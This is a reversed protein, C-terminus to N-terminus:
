CREWVKAFGMMKWARHSVKLILSGAHTVLKGATDIFSRRFTGAYATVPIVDYTIDSKFAEYLFLTLVRLQYIVKNPKLKEFPLREGQLEKFARFVLEDNGRDHYTKILVEPKFLLELGSKKLLQDIKEGRGINTYIVNCTGAV